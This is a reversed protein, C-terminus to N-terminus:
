SLRANLELKVESVAGSALDKDSDGHQFALLIKMADQVKEPTLTKSLETEVIKLENETFLLKSSSNEDTNQATKDDVDSSFAVTFIHKLDIANKKCTDGQLALALLGLQRFFLCILDSIM